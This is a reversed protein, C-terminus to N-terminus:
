STISFRGVADVLADRGVIEAPADRKGAIRGMEVAGGAAHPQVTAQVVREFQDRRQAIHAGARRQRLPEIEVLAAPPRHRQLLDDSLSVGVAGAHPFLIRRFAAFDQGVQLRDGGVTPTLFIM